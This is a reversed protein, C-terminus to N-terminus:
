FFWIREHRPVDDALEKRLASLESELARNASADAYRSMMELYRDGAAKDDKHITRIWPYVFDRLLAIAKADQHSQVYRRLLEDIAPVFTPDLALASLLLEEDSEGQARSGSGFEDLFQAFRVYIMTNWPDVALAARFRDRAQEPLYKSAPEAQAARYLLVAEGYVPLGRNGNLREALRAFELMRHPDARTANALGFTPEAQFVGLIAVDLVLYLWIIWGVAVASIAAGTPVSVRAAGRRASFLLAATVGIMIDLPLSYFVFNAFAHACTALLAIGYGLDAFRRDSVDLRVYRVAERGVLFVFTLLLALLPVGGETLFQIYDNHVFVGATDQEQTSRIGPYLLPFCLIGIGWPHSSFMSLAARILEGRVFLGSHFEFGKTPIATTSVVIEAVGWACVAAVVHAVIATRTRNRMLTLALWFVLCAAVILLATRSHTAVIALVLVFSAVVPVVTETRGVSDTRWARAIHRHVLPIWALYTLTAYNNPDILPEHAREGFAVFRVDSLLALSLVLLGVLGVMFRRARVDTAVVSACLFTLPVSALVWTPAFSNDPSVSFRYAVILYGLVGLALLFGGGNAGALDRLGPVSICSLSALLLAIVVALMVLNTGTGYFVLSAALAAGLLGAAALRATM